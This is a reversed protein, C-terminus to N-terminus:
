WEQGSDEDVEPKVDSPTLDFDALVEEHAIGQGRHQDFWTKSDAVAQHEEGPAPEDDAPANAIARAVPDELSQLKHLHRKDGSLDRAMLTGGLYTREAM